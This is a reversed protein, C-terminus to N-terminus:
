AGVGFPYHEQTGPVKGTRTNDSPRANFHPGQDGIGGPEGFYHGASHDQIVVKSGDARRFTYERTILPRGNPGLLPRGTRGTMPVRAVNLPHQNMPIGLDREAERFAGRRGCANHARLGLEGVLYEHDADVEINFVERAGRLRELAQVAVAGDATQLREGMQLDRVRVWDDRDLSYLPHSATIGLAETAGELWLARLEPSRPDGEVGAEHRLRMRVAQGGGLGAPADRPTVAVVRAVGALKLEPIELELEGGVRPIGGYDSQPRILEVQYIHEAEDAASLEVSTAYWAEEARAEPATTGLAVLAAAALTLRGVRSGKTGDEGAYEPGEASALGPYTLVAEGPRLAEIADRGEATWVPTGAVFCGARERWGDDRWRVEGAADLLAAPTGVEDTVAYRTSEPVLEGDEDQEIKGLLEPRDPDFLWTKVVGGAARVADLATEVTPEEADFDETPEVREPPARPRRIEHLPLSGDYVFLTENRTDRRLVCRGLGDYSLEIEKGDGRRVRAPRGAGDYTYRWTGSPSERSCVRGEEDYIYVHRRGRADRSEVRGRVPGLTWDAREGERILSTLEGPLCMEAIANPLLATALHSFRPDVMRAWGERLARDRDQESRSGTVVRELLSAGDARAVDIGTLEGEADRLSCVSAPGLTRARELGRRDRQYSIQFASRQGAEVELSAIYGRTGREWRMALGASSQLAAVAGDPDYTTRVVGAAQHEERVRGAADREFRTWHDGLRASSLHGDRDYEFAERGGGPYKVEHVRGLPDREIVTWRGDGRRVRTVEGCADRELQTRVGHVDVVGVVEGAADRELLTRRGWPDATRVLRGETDYDFVHRRGDVSRSALQDLGGWTQEVRQEGDELGLMRGEPDWWLHTRRGDPTWVEVLRGCLDYRRREIAGEPDVIEVVRGLRDRRLETVAGDPGDVREVEGGSWTLRTTRGGVSVIKSVVEGEYVYRTRAGSPDISEVVRGELDRELRHSAGSPLVREIVGGHRDYRTDLISGEALRVRTRRGMADYGYSTERGLPDREEILNQQADFTALREGGGPDVTGHVVGGDHHYIRVAGVSDRVKTQGEGYELRHDFLGGDGWTRLCRAAPGRGEYEFHFRLGERHTETEILASDDLYGYELRHGLPNTASVLRGLGDYAYRVLVVTADALVPHPGRVAEIRGERNWDLQLELGPRAVARLRGEGDYRYSVTLSGIQKSEVRVFLHSRHRRLVHRRGDREILYLEEPGPRTLTFGDQPRTTREGVALPSFTLSRGDEARLVWGEARAELWMEHNSHWGRGLSGDADSFNTDYHRTWRLPFAEGLSFDEAETFMRGTAVDVPHGTATCVATHVADRVKSTQKVGARDMVKKAALHARDSIGKALKTARARKLAGGIGKTAAAMGLNSLTITPAGGVLVPAGAPIALATSVPLFLSKAGSGKPRVPAPMGVDQCSLVQMGNYAMADGDVSVTSSGMFVEAESMPPKPFMGGLPVHPPTATGASGAQARPLGNVWVTAGLLPLYDVPDFIMGVYPHPLPVPPVPGPPQVLHLDVGVIPDLHKLAPSSM